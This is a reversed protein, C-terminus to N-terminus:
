RSDSIWGIYAVTISLNRKEAVSKLDNFEVEGLEKYDHSRLWTNLAEHQTAGKLISDGLLIADASANSMEDATM